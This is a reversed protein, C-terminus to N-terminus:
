HEAALVHSDTGPYVLGEHGDKWRVLYPPAGGEGRVEVIEAERRPDTDSHGEVVLRDGVKAQM